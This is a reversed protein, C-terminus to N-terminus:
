MEDCVTSDKALHKQIGQGEFHSVSGVRHTMLVGTLLGVVPFSQEVGLTTVCRSTIIPGVQAGPGDLSDAAM